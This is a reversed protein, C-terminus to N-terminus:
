SSWLPSDGEFNLIQTSVEEFLLQVPSVILMGELRLEPGFVVLNDPILASPGSILALWGGGRRWSRSSLTLSETPGPHVTQM